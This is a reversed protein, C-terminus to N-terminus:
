RQWAGEHALQARLVGLIGHFESADGAVWMRFFNSSASRPMLPALKRMASVPANTSQVLSPCRRATSPRAARQVDGKGADLLHDGVLRM